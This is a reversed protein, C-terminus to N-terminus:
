RPIIELDAVITRTKKKGGCIIIWIEIRADTTQTNKITERIRAGLQGAVDSVGPCRFVGLSKYVTTHVYIHLYNRRFQLDREWGGRCAHGQTCPRYSWLINTLSGLSRSVTRPRYYDAIGTNQHTSTSRKKLWICPSPCLHSKTKIGGWKEIRRRTGEITGLYVLVSTGRFDVWGKESNQSARAIGRWIRNIDM